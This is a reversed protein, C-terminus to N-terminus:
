SMQGRNKVSCRLAWCKIVEIRVRLITVGQGATPGPVGTHSALRCFTCRASVETRWLDESRSSSFALFLIKRNREPARRTTTATRRTDGNTVGIARPMRRDNWGDCGLIDTQRKDHRFHSHWFRSLRSRCNAVQRQPSRGALRCSLRPNDSFVSIWWGRSVSKM